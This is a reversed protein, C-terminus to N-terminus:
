LGLVTLFAAVAISVSPAPNTPRPPPNTGLPSAVAALPALTSLAVAALTLRLTKKM